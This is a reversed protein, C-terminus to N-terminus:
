KGGMLLLTGISMPMLLWFANVWMFPRKSMWKGLPFDGSDANCSHPDQTQLRYEGMYLLSNMFQCGMGMAGALKATETHGQAMLVLSTLTMSACCLAHSSEILRSWFDGKSRSMYERDAYAGYEAYFIHALKTPLVTSLPYSETWVHKHQTILQQSLAVVSAYTTVFVFEWIGTLVTFCYWYYTLAHYKSFEPVTARIQHSIVGFLLIELAAIMYGKM